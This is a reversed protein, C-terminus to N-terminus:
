CCQCFFSEFCNTRAFPTQLPSDHHYHRPNPSSLPTFHPPLISEGRLIRRCLTLKQKIRRSRLSPWNLHAMLQSCSGQWQKTCLRAAFRLVSELQSIYASYMPVWVCCCYDLTPLVSTLYALTPKDALYFHRYLIGLQRKAKSCTGNLHHRLSHPHTSSVVRGHTIRPPRPGLFGYM